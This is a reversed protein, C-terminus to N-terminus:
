RQRCLSLLYEGCNFCLGLIFAAPLVLVMALLLPGVVAKLCVALTTWIIAFIILAPLYDLM